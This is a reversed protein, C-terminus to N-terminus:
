RGARRDALGIAARKLSVCAWGSPPWAIAGLRQLASADLAALDVVDHHARRELPTRLAAVDGAL